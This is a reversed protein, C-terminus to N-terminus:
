RHRKFELKNVSARNATGKRGVKHKPNRNRRRGRKGKRKEYVPLHCNQAPTIYNHMAFYFEDPNRQLAKRKLERIQNRRLEENRARLIFDKKKPLPGLHSRAAPQSREKHLRANRKQVNKFSAFPM